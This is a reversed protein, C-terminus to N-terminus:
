GNAKKNKQVESNVWEYLKRMGVELPQTPKWGLTKEILTNDSNRCAVGVYPSDVNKITLKKGSIDIVMQALENISVSQDSGLNIPHIFDSDMLRFIGEICEDIYLFSRKALGTGWVDIEEGDKAMAVKRSIASPAKEKGGDYIGEIGFINHFRAIRIDLGHAVNASQVMQESFLKQWGYSLDPQACYADKEALAICDSNESQLNMNYVCASSSYFVKQVKRKVCLDIINSVIQSSGIMIDLDHESNGIWGMGGMLCAILYCDTIDNESFIIYSSQQYRLDLLYFKDPKDYKPEVLDCGIVYHGKAKLARVLHGGIFGSSGAVFVTKKM